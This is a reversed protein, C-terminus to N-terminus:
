VGGAGDGKTAEVIAHTVAQDRWIWRRGECVECVDFKEVAQMGVCTSGFCEKRSAGAMGSRYVDTLRGCCQWLTAGSRVKGAGHCQRCLHVTMVLGQITENADM